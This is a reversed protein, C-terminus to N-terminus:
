KEVGNRGLLIGPFDESPDTQRKKQIPRDPDSPARETSVGRAGHVWVIPGNSKGQSYISGQYATSLTQQGALVLQARFQRRQRAVIHDNNKAHSNELYLKCITGSPRLNNIRGRRQRSRM